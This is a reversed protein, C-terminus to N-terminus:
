DWGWLLIRPKGNEPRLHIRLKKKLILRHHYNCGQFKVYFIYYIGVIVGYNFLSVNEFCRSTSVMMKPIFFGDPFIEGPTIMAVRSPCFGPVLATLKKTPGM